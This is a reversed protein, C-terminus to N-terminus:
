DRLRRAKRGASRTGVFGIRRSAYESLDDEAPLPEEPDFVGRGGWGLYRQLYYKRPCQAFVALSTVNVASDHQGEVPPPALREAEERHTQDEWDPEPPDEAIERPQLQEGGDQGLEVQFEERGRVVPHSAGPRPDDRRLSPPEIGTERARQTGRRQCSALLGPPRRRQVALAMEPRSRCSTYLHRTGIRAEHRKGDRRHDHGPVGSGQSRARDDGARLQGPRRGGTRCETDVAKELSEAMRLFAALDRGAGRTRALHLYSAFDDSEGMTCDTLIRAILVELPVVAQESRWRRLSDVFHRLKAADAEDFNELRAEDFAVYNIGGSVSNGLLRLTFLAEDSLCVFPSRLVSALAITNRPNLIVHLLATLDLGDRSVLFSQRRGCVYPINWKGLARLIPGMSESNRCLIAFDRFEAAAGSALQLEGRLSAIRHAIWAAERESASERDAGTVKIAEVSSHQKDPFSAAAILERPDIGEAGNTLREVTRLIEERSRFNHFLQAMHKGESRTSEQYRHFIEPRAHRFAYISQNADGVAFFVDEGRVLGILDWQQENIDQFEDLMVQRFQSRVKESTEPNHRLLEISRRELDDFDLTGVADKRSRYRDEFADLVDFLMARFSAMHEDIVASVVGALSDRFAKLGERNVAGVQRLDLRFAKLVALTEIAQGRPEALQAAWERLEERHTAQLPTIKGTWGSLQSLLQEALGAADFPAAPSPLARIEAITKGSSRIADYVEVLHRAIDPTHLADILGLAESRRRAMLDDLAHNMSDFQLEEAERADLVAFRPDIGATIAHERLLRACFGHITSVWATELDHLLFPDGSFEGALRARMNAAAKETFTIALIQHPEFGYDEILSRYREVLVTTKGSGPGAVVCADRKLWEIAHRQEKTFDPM